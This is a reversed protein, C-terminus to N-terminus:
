LSIIKNNILIFYYILQIIIFGKFNFLTLTIFKLNM